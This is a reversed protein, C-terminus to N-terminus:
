LKERPIIARAYLEELSIENYLAGIDSLYHADSNTLMMLDYKEALEQARAKNIEWNHFANDIEIGQIMDIEMLTRGLRGPHAWFRFVSNNPLYLEVVEERFSVVVERGPIILVQSDFYQEVIEKVKFGYDKNNHETIAIGDLGQAKIRAVIERVLEVTPPRYSTAEQCHTHLDLKLKM